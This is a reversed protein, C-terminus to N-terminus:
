ATVRRPIMLTLTGAGNLLIYGSLLRLVAYGAAVASTDTPWMLLSIIGVCGWAALGMLIGVNDLLGRTAAAAFLITLSAPLMFVFFPLPGHDPDLMDKLQFQVLNLSIGFAVLLVGVVILLRNM